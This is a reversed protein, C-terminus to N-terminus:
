SLQNKIIFKNKSPSFDGIVLSSEKQLRQAASKRNTLRSLAICLCLAQSKWISLSPNYFLNNKKKGVLVRMSSHFTLYMHGTKFIRYSIGKSLAIFRNVKTEWKRLLIWINLSILQKRQRKCGGIFIIRKYYIKIYPCFMANSLM